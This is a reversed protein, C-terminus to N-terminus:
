RVVLVPCHANATVGSSVSGLVLKKLGSLGRSGIVILDIKEGQAYTTIREVVSGTSEQTATTTKVGTGKAMQATRNVLTDAVNRLYSRYQDDAGSSTPITAGYLIPVNVYSALPVVHLIVLEARYKQAIDIAVKAARTSNESGDVAVMIRRFDSSAIPQQSGATNKEPKRASM